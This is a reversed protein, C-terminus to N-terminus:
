QDSEYLIENVAFIPLDLIVSTGEAWDQPNKCIAAYQDTITCLDNTDPTLYEVNYSPLLVFFYVLSVTIFSPVALCWWSIM